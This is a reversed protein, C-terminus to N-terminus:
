SQIHYLLYSQDTSHILPYSIGDVQYNGTLKYGSAVPLLTEADLHLYCVVSETQYAKDQLIDNTQYLANLADAKLLDAFADNADFEIQIMEPTQNVSANAIHDPLIISGVLIDRCYSLMAEKSVDQIESSETGDILARYTGDQFIETQQKKSSAGSKGTNEMSVVTDVQAFWGDTHDTKLTIDTIRLDGFVQCHIQESYSAQINGCDMLHGSAIELMRPADMYSISTYNKANAPKAITQSSGSQLQVSVSYKVHAQSANYSITYISKALQGDSTLYVSGEAQQLVCAEPIAWAEAAKPNQFSLITEGNRQIGTVSSYLSPDIMVLPTFRALYEEQTLQSQFPVGAVTFFCQEDLYTETIEVTHTGTTLTETIAACFADSGINQYELHQQGNERFVQGDITTEKVYSIIACMSDQAKHAQVALDYAEVTDTVTPYTVDAAGPAKMLMFASIVLVIAMIACGIAIYLKRKQKM